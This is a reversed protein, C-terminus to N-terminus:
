VSVIRKPRIALLIVTLNIVMISQITSVGALWIAVTNHQAFLLATTLSTIILLVM